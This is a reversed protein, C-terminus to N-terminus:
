TKITRKVDSVEGLIRFFTIEGKIVNFRRIQAISNQIAKESALETFIHVYSIKEDKKREAVSAHTSEININNEGLVTAIKGMVGPVDLCTFRLYYGSEVEEIPLVSKERWLPLEYMYKASTRITTAVDILDRIVMNAAPYIGAGKGYLMFEGAIDTQIYVANYDNQVFILPHTQPVLTPHVRLELKENRDKLIALLKIQYGFEEAFQFDIARLNSIGEAYVHLFNVEVGFATAALLALKQASDSGEYDILMHSESLKQLEPLKLIEKLSKKSRSMESLIFNSSGSAIGWLGIIKAGILDRRLTHIIPIGGGLAADFQLHVRKSRALEFVERMKSALLSRNASVLHCRRELFRKIIGYTPEIGGMADVVIKIDQDAIIKVVDDTIIEPPIARNRKYHTHKVLIHKINLDIGTQEIIKNKRDKLLLYIGQGLKGCGLLAIDVQKAKGM